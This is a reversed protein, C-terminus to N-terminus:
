ILVFAFAPSIVLVNWACCARALWSMVSGAGRRDPECQQKYLNYLSTQSMQGEGLHCDRSGCSLKIHADVKGFVQTSDTHNAATLGHLVGKTGAALTDLYALDEDVPSAGCKMGTGHRKSMLGYAHAWCIKWLPLRGVDVSLRLLLPTVLARILIMKSCSRAAVGQM